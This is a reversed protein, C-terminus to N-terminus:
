SKTQLRYKEKREANLRDSNKKYWERRKTNKEENTMPKFNRSIKKDYLINKRYKTITDISHDGNRKNLLKTGISTYYDIWYRERSVDNTYEILEIESKKYIDDSISYNKCSKRVKLKLITKGIYIVDGKYIIKYIKLGDYRKKSNIISDEKVKDKNKQRWERCYEKNTKKM